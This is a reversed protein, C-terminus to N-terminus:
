GAFVLLPIWTLALAVALAVATVLAGAVLWGSVSWWSVREPVDAGQAAPHQAELIRGIKNRKNALQRLRGYIAAENESMARIRVVELGGDRVMKKVSTSSAISNIVVTVMTNTKRDIAHVEYSPM